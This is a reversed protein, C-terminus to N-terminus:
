IKESLSGLPMTVVTNGVSVSDAVSVSQITCLVLMSAWIM